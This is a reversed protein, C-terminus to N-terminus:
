PRKPQEVAAERGNEVWKELFDRLVSSLSVGESLAKIRAKRRLGEPVLATVKVLEAM